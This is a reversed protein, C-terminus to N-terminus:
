AEKYGARLALRQSGLSCVLAPVASVLASGGAVVAAPVGAIRDVGFVLPLLVALLGLFATLWLFVAGTIAIRRRSAQFQRDVEYVWRYCTLSSVGTQDAIHSAIGDVDRGNRLEDRILPLQARSIDAERRARDSVSESM